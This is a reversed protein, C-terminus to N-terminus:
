VASMVGSSPKTVIFMLKAEAMSAAEFLLVAGVSSDSVKSRVLGVTTRESSWDSAMTRSASVTTMVVVRVSVFPISSDVAGVIVIPENIVPAVIVLIEFRIQVYEHSTGEPLSPVCATDIVAVSLAPLVFSAAVPTM